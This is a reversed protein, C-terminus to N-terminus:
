VGSGATHQPRPHTNLPGADAPAAGGAAPGQSAARKRGTEQGAAPSSPAPLFPHAAWFPRSGVVGPGPHGGGERHGGKGRRRPRGLAPSHSGLTAPDPRATRSAPHESRQRAAGSAERGGRWEGPRGPTAARRDPFTLLARRMGADAGWRASRQRSVRPPEAPTPFHGRVRGGGLLRFACTSAPPGEM